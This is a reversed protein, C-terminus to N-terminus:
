CNGVRGFNGGTGGRTLGILYKDALPYSRLGFYGGTGEQYETETEIVDVKKKVKKLTGADTVDPQLDASLQRQTYEAVANKLQDPITFSPIIRGEDDMVGTRPWDLSQDSMCISGKWKNNLDVYQTAIIIAAEKEPDTQTLTVNRCLWYADLEAVSIYGNANPVVSGDEVILAM